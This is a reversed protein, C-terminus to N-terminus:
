DIVEAHHLFRSVLGGSARTSREDFIRIAVVDFENLREFSNIREEITTGYITREGAASVRLKGNRLSAYAGNPGPAPQFALYSSADGAVQINADRQATLSTFAGTAYVAGVVVGVAMLVIALRRVSSM